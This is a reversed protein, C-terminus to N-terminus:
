KQLQVKKNASKSEHRACVVRFCKRGNKMFFTDKYLLKLLWPCFMVMRNELIWLNSLRQATLVVTKHETIEAVSSNFVMTNAKGQQGRHTEQKDVGSQEESM